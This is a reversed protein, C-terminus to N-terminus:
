SGASFMETEIDTLVKWVIKTKENVPIQFFRGEQGIAKAQYSNDNPQKLIRTLSVPYNPGKVKQNYAKEIPVLKARSSVIKTMDRCSKTNGLCFFRYKTDILYYSTDAEPKDRSTLSDMSVCGSLGILALFILATRM